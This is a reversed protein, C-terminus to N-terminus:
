TRIHTHFYRSFRSILDIKNHCNTKRIISQLHTEVTRPSILLVRAAEKNTKGLCISNLCEFERKTLAFQEALNLSNNKIKGESTKSRVVGFEDNLIKFLLHYATRCSDSLKQPPALWYQEWLEVTIVKSFGLIYHNGNKDECPYCRDILHINEGGPTSIQYLVVNKIEDFYNLEHRVQLQKMYNNKNDLSLYDLWLMPLEYLITGDRQWIKNFQDSSYIQKSMDHNRIWFVHHEFRNLPEFVLSLHQPSCTLLHSLM